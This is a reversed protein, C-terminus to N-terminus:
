LRGFARRRRLLLLGITVLMLLLPSGSGGNSASCGGSVPTCFGIGDGSDTCEFGGPCSEGAVECAETCFRDGDAAQACLGSLCDANEGCLDGLNGSSPVCVNDECTSGSPCDSGSDCSSDVLISISAADSDGFNDFAVLDLTHDGDPVDVFSRVFPALTLTEVLDGDLYVEVRDVEVNDTANAEVVFFHPVRAGDTPRAFEVDPPIQIDNDRIFADIFGAHQAVRMAGSEGLCGGTGWSTEGAVVEAGNRTIFSPGGSDGQCTNASSNGYNFVFSNQLDTIQATVQRKVGAPGAGATEGWGVLRISRGIDAGTLPARNIDMPAVNSERELLIVAIDGGALSWNPDYDQMIGAITQVEGPDPGDTTTGFYVSQATVPGGVDVCHAATLVVRPSILTGSCAGSEAGSTVIYPVAPDGTNIQGGVIARTDTSAVPEDPDVADCSCLLAVLCLPPLRRMDIRIPL